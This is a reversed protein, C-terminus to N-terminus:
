VSWPASTIAASPQGRIAEVLLDLGPRIARVRGIGADIGIPPTLMSKPRAPKATCLASALRIARAPLVGSITGSTACLPVATLVNTVVVTSGV